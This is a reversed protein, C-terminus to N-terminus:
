TPDPRKAFTVRLAETRTLALSSRCVQPVWVLGQDNRVVPWQRREAAPVKADQMCRVVLRSGNGGLPRIRDGQKWARVLYKAPSLWATKTVREQQEPPHEPRWSVEWGDWGAKGSAGEITLEPLDAPAILPAMRVSVRGFQLWAEWGNKLDVRRGSRGSVILEAVRHGARGGFAEGHRRAIALFVAEILLEPRGRLPRADFAFGEGARESELGLLEVVSDWAARDTAAQEALGILKRDLGPVHARAAPLLETRLWSRLHRTDRNAPDDWAAIGREELWARIESRSFPLLPRVLMGSVPAIGALGAPGSGKLVRMMVTEVQDDRHHATFLWAGIKRALTKLWRYRAERAFTETAAPGLKLTTLEFPLGLDKAAAEVARAVAASDPHIGHDVHAVIVELGEDAQRLLHLLALSDPGGSVAVLVPRPDLRLGGLHKAFRRSLDTV